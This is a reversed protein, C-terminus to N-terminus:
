SGIQTAALLSRLAASVRRGVILHAALDAHSIWFFGPPPHQFETALIQYRDSAMYFRGGEKSWMVDLQTTQPNELLSYIWTPTPERHSSGWDAVYSPAIEIPGPSGLERRLQVLYVLADNTKSALLVYRGSCAPQVLPQEWKAVERSAQAVSVGIVRAPAKLEALPKSSPCSGFIETLPQASALLREGTFKSRNPTWPLCGLISRLDMHIVHDYQLLALICSLDLWKYGGNPPDFEIFAAANRNVKQHFVYSDELQLQDVVVCSPHGLAETFAAALPVERGGHAQSLNSQTAQIAPSIQIRDPNGPEFKAQVLAQVNGDRMRLPLGLLGIGYQHIVPQLWSNGTAAELVKKTEIRFFKGSRHRLQTASSNLEWSELCDLPTSEVLETAAARQNALWRLPLTLDASRAAVRAESLSLFLEHPRPM